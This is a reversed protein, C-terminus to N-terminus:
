SLFCSQNALLAKCMVSAKNTVLAEWTLLLALMPELVLTSSGSTERRTRWAEVGWCIM